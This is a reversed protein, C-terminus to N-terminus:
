SKYCYPRGYKYVLDYKLREAKERRILEYSDDNHIVLVNHWPTGSNKFGPILNIGIKESNGPHPHISLRISHGYHEKILKDFASKRQMMQKAVKKARKERQSRSLERNIDLDDHLFYTIGVYAIREGEDEKIRALVEDLSGGYTTMIRDRCGQSDPIGLLNEPGIFDISKNNGDAIEGYMNMLANKYQVVHEDPIGLLDSYIFADLIITIRSGQKYIRQVKENFNHLHRLSVEEGADPLIGLVKKNRNPSKAPFAPLVFEITQYNKIFYELKSEFNVRGGNHFQDNPPKKRISEFITGIECVIRNTENM